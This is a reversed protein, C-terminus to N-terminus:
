FKLYLLRGYIVKNFFYFHVLHLFLARIDFNVICYLSPFETENIRIIIWLTATFIISIDCDNKLMANRLLSFILLKKTYFTNM